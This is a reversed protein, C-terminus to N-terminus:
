NSTSEKLLRMAEDETIQGGARWYEISLFPRKPVTIISGTPHVMVQYGATKVFGFLPAKGPLLQVGIDNSTLDPPLRKKFSSVALYPCVQLAYVGCQRHLPPDLYVGAPELATKAGGILWIDLELPHGCLSCLRQQICQIFAMQDHEGFNPIGSADRSVTFPIPYGSKDQPLRIMAPPIEIAKWNKMKILKLSVQIPAPLSWVGSHILLL